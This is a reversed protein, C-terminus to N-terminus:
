PLRDIYRSDDLARRLAAEADEAGASGAGDTASGFVADEAARLAASSAPKVLSWKGCYPCREYRHTFVNIGFWRLAFPRRCQPCIAGGWRGYSPRDGAAARRRDTVSLVATIVAFGIALALIPGAIRLAMQMGRDAAVFTVRLEPAHVLRGDATLGTAGLTHAGLTYTDTNIQATFPASDAEALTEGDLLFAVQALDPPGSATLTFLGQMEDGWAYGWTKAVHLKLANGQALAVGGVLFACLTALTFWLGVRRGMPHRLQAPRGSLGILVNMVEM